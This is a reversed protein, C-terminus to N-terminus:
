KTRSPVSCSPLSDYINVYGPKCGINAITVWHCRSVNLLQVFEGPQVSFALTEALAVSELGGVYPYAKKMLIHAADVINDTLWKGALLCQEDEQFLNLDEIWYGLPKDVYAQTTLDICEISAYRFFPLAHTAVFCILTRMSHNTGERKNNGPEQHLQKRRKADKISALTRKQKRTHAHSLPEPNTTQIQPILEEM